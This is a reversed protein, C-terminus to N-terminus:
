NKVYKEYTMHPKAITQKQTPVSNIFNFYIFDLFLASIFLKIM